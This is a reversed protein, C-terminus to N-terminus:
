LSWGLRFSEVAFFTNTLTVRQGHQHAEASIGSMWDSEFGVVHIWFQYASSEEQVALSVSRQPHNSLSQSRPGLYPYWRSGSFHIRITTASCSASALHINWCRSGSRLLTWQLDHLWLVIEACCSWLHTFLRRFSSLWMGLHSQQVVLDMCNSHDWRCLIRGLQSSADPISQVLIEPRGNKFTGRNHYSTQLRSVSPGKDRGTLYLSKREAELM